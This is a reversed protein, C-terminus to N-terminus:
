RSREQLVALRAKMQIANTYAGGLAAAQSERALTKHGLWLVASFYIVLGIVYLLGVYGLGHLWLRDFFQERFRASYESPQM